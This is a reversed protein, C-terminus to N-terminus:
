HNYCFAFYHCILSFFGCWIFIVNRVTWVQMMKAHIYFCSYGLQTIKKALLEVRQTSNCFIISQNIQLQSLFFVFCDICWVKLKDSQQELRNRTWINLQWIWHLFLINCLHFFRYIGTVLSCCCDPWSATNKWYSYICGCKQKYILMIKSLLFSQLM